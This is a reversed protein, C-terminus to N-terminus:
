HSPTTYGALGLRWRRFVDLADWAPRADPAAIALSARANLLVEIVLPPAGESRAVGLAVDVRTRMKALYEAAPTMGRDQCRFEPPFRTNRGHRLEGSIAVNAAGTARTAAEGRPALRL